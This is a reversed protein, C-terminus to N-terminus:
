AARAQPVTGPLPDVAIANSNFCYTPPLGYAQMWVKSFHASDAFGAAAAIETMSMGSGFYRSAARLKLSQQYKRLSVRVEASFLHSLRDGSLCVAEALQEASAGPNDELLSLVRAIRADMPKPAPLQLALLDFARQFTLRGEKVSMAERHFRRLARTLSAFSERPLCTYGPEPLSSFARFLRHAPGIDLSAFPANEALVQKQLMPRLAVVACRQRQGAVEIEFDTDTTAVLLTGLQRASCSRMGECAFMFGDHFLATRDRPRPADDAPSM